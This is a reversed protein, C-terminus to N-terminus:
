YISFIINCPSFYLSWIWRFVVNELLSLRRAWLITDMNSSIKCNFPMTIVLVKRVGIFHKLFSCARIVVIRTLICGKSQLPIVNSQISRTCQRHFRWFGQRFTIEPWVKFNIIFDQSNTKVTYLHLTRVLSACIDYKGTSARKDLVKPLVSGFSPWPM